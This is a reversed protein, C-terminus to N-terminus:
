NADTSVAIKNDLFKKHVARCADEVVDQKVLVTIKIESTSILDININEEHLAEFMSSAVGNTEAMGAGVISLKATNTDFTVRQFGIEDKLEELVQVAKECDEEVVTFSIDKVSEDGVTSQLIIDISVSAESLANFIQYAVGHTDNLGQVTIRATNKDIAIGKVILKEMKSVEKVVTGEEHTLSSRVVLEMKYKKAIEVCRYHLVKAGLAALELMEDYSIEDLKRANSVVRPDCTYVGDVDTYIECKDAKIAAAIAVASTDSGGRGLTTVDKNRNYGQFGTIIVINNRELEDNIRDTEVVKRIRANSYTSTTLMGIQFGNLSIAPYGMEHIAMALLAVSIQEGTSLLMDLERKSPKASIEKAKDILDDTTDGQASLVVVMKHGKKYESVVRNAVNKIRESNAVSTGGYKQVILLARGGLRSTSVNVIYLLIAKNLM